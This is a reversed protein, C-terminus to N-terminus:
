AHDDSIERRHEHHVGTIGPTREHEGTARGIAFWTGLAVAVIDGGPDILAAETRIRRGTRTALRSVLLHREAARVPRRIEVALEGTVVSAGAPAAALAPAGSPCDLAAWVLWFPVEGSGGPRWHTAHVDLGRVRGPRLRLGGPGTGTGPGPRDPGCGFCTPFPHVGGRADLWHEEARDVDAPAIRPFGALDPRLGLPRGTAVVTAGFGVEIRDAERRIPAMPTDLPIPRHLRVVARRPDILEALRGATVGGHGVGPPGNYGAEIVITEAGIEVPGAPQRPRAAQRLDTTRDM